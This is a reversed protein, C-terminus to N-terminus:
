WCRKRFTSACKTMVDGRVKSKFVNLLNFEELREVEKEFICLGVIVPFINAQNLSAPLLGPGYQLQSNM